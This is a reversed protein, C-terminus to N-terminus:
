VDKWSIYNYDGSEKLMQIQTLFPQRDHKLYSPSDDLFVGQKYNPHCYLEITNYRSLLEKKSLFYDINTAPIYKVCPNWSLTRILRYKKSPRHHVGMYRVSKIGYKLTFLNLAVAVPWVMNYWLHFDVHKYDGKGQTVEIFYEYQAVLEKYVTKWKLINKIELPLGKDLRFRGDECFLTDKKMADTLPTDESGEQLQNTSLNFHLHIDKFNGGREIILNVADQVYKGTVILGASCILGQRFAEDIARNRGPSKGYDDANM